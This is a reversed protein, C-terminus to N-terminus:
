LKDLSSCMIIDPSFRPMRLIEVVMCVLFPVCPLSSTCLKFCGSLVRCGNMDGVAKFRLNLGVGSARNNSASGLPLLKWTGCLDSGVRWVM